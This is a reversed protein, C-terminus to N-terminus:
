QGRELLQPLRAALRGIDGAGALLLIDGDELLNPLLEPVADPGEVFVPDCEGRTRIARSLARGDAGPIPQEGAAYVECLVLTDVGSLVAVFDDFQEQTRSYRHPQFVLVLRRGPWGERAAALTAALERPHHGYDDVVLLDRGWADHLEHAVFRRGVGEFRSLARAIAREEVGLELAVTIAALANLVNHRGPLNLTLELPADLADSEVRFSTRMGCQRLASARVDAEPHTGYTRVPRPITSVLGHVVPDDICLVALGYFPLHHLFEVFTSRLRSFDNGYTHMHDADINTVISVMPQLYLFSADSEDAEAVLYKTTGLKANAGASNLRGGIVFTPDLGGEALVSAVLSTTTTKGHTGAVAVGYYFRMLEALMEARRVIPIRGARAARIEPNDEDIATSVVVADADVVQEARHGICVEAGLGVLRRTVESERLDSGSVEYGLNAMLEAIGSMGAGGIGVFHLRRVRGMNAATHTLHANM